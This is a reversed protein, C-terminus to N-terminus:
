AGHLLPGLCHAPRQGELARWLAPCDDADTQWEVSSLASARWCRRYRPEDADTITATVRIAETGPADITTPSSRRYAWKGVLQRTRTAAPAPTAVSIAADTLMTRRGSGNYRYDGPRARVEPRERGPTADLLRGDVKEGRQHLQAVVDIEVILDAVPEETLEGVAGPVCDSSHRIIEVSDPPLDSRVLDHEDALRPPPLGTREAPPSSGSGHGLLALQVFVLPMFIVDLLRCGIGFSAFQLGYLAVGLLAASAVIKVVYYGRQPNLLASAEVIRELEAYENRVPPQRASGGFLCCRDCLHARHWQWNDPDRCWM